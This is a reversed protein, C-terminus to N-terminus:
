RTETVMVEKEIKFKSDTLRVKIPFGGVAPAVQRGVNAFASVMQPQDAIGDKVVFWVATGDKDKSLRVSAGHNGFFGIGKLREGLSKAEAETASGSYYVEDNSGITVKSLEGLTGVLLMGVFIALFAGGVGAAAWRSGLMGGQAVHQEVVKGQLSQAVAKTVLATGIAVAMGAAPFYSGLVAAAITAFIGLIVTAIARKSRNLRRDNIAMVAAGAVPSGLFAALFVSRADFLSYRPPEPSTFAPAAAISM